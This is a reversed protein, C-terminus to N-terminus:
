KRKETINFIITLANFFYVDHVLMFNDYWRKDLETEDNLIRVFEKARWRIYKDLLKYIM